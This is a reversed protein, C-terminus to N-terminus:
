ACRSVEVVDASALSVFACSGMRCSGCCQLPTTWLMLSAVNCLHKEAVKLTQRIAHRSKVPFHQALFSEYRGFTNIDMDLDHSM